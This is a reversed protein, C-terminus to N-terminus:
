AEVRQIRAAFAGDHLEGHALQKEQALVFEPHRELFSRVQGTNEEPEISCTSYVIRGGPRVLPAAAELIDAQLRVLKSLQANSFRWAADPRRRLVGTNTCPVDLLLADVCGPRLPPRRADGLCLTANPFRDLNERVRRLRQATRDMCVLKGRDGLDEAIVVSKGGPASCLDAVCEGPQIDMLAPALLTAPDQVYYDGRRFAPSAFFAGPAVVRFLRAGPAWAVAPLPKLHAVEDPPAAGARLRVILPAPRRFLAAFEAIRISPLHRCWQRYLPDPLGVKVGEPAEAAVLEAWAAAPRAALRRLVANVFRAEGAHYRRRVYGVCVDTVVASALGDAFLVQTAGWRLIRRLRPRIRRGPTLRALLWDIEAQRRFLTFVANHLAPDAPAGDLLERISVGKDWRELLAVTRALNREASGEARPPADPPTTERSPKPM